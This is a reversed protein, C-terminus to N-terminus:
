ARGAARAVSIPLVVARRKLTKGKDPPATLKTETDILHAFQKREGVMGFAGAGVGVAHGAGVEVVDVPFNSVKLSHPACEPLNGIATAPRRLM